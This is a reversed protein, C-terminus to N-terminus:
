RRRQDSCSLRTDDLGGVGCVTDQVRDMRASNRPRAYQGGRGMAGDRWAVLRCVRQGGLAAFGKQDAILGAFYMADYNGTDYLDLALQYDMKIRKQIKKMDGIKVGFCPERVCYNKFLLKKYSENGLAKLEKLISKANM